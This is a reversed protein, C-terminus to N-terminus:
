ELVEYELLSKIKYKKLKEQGGIGKLEVIFQVVEVKGGLEKILECGAKATGGTALLDDVLLIRDGNKISDKQIEIIDSGYELGYEKRIVEGPLKGKKRIMVFPKKVKLALPTGFLFGRADFGVIKDINSFDNMRIIENIAFEFAEPNALLPSIDKFAIGKKPFDMITRIYNNLDM